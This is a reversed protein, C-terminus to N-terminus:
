GLQGRLLNRGRLARVRLANVSVGTLLSIAEYDMGEVYHLVVAEKYADPLQGVARWLRSALEDRLIGSLVGNRQGKKGPVLSLRSSDTVGSHRSVRRRHQRALNVVIGRAWALFPTQPDYRDIGALARTLAEQAMSEAEDLDGILFSALRALGPRHR